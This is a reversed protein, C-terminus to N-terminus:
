RRDRAVEWRVTIRPGRGSGPTAARTPTVRTWIVVARPWPDGSAVGHAFVRRRRRAALGAEASSATSALTLGAGAAVSSALVTRRAVAQGTPRISCESSSM